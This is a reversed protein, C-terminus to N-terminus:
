DELVYQEFGVEILTLEEKIQLVEGDRLAQALGCVMAAGSADYILAKEAIFRVPDSLNIESTFLIEQATSLLALMRKGPRYLDRTLRELDGRNLLYARNEEKTEFSATYAKVCDAYAKLTQATRPSLGLSLLTETDAEILGCVGGLRDDIEHALENVDRRPLATYLMLEIVEHPSFSMLGNEKLARKLRQRHGSHDASM